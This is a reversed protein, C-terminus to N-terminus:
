SDVDSLVAVGRVMGGLCVSIALIGCAWPTLSTFPTAQHGLVPYSPTSALTPSSPPTLTHLTPLAHFSFSDSFSLSQEVSNFYTPFQNHLVKHSSYRGTDSDCRKQGLEISCRSNMIKILWKWM